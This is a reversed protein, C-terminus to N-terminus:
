QVYGLNELERRTEPDLQQQLKEEAKNELKWGFKDIYGTKLEAELKAITDASAGSIEQQERPDSAVAYLEQKKMPLTHDNKGRQTENAQNRERKVPPEFGSPNYIYKHDGTRIYLMKDGWEGIVPGRDLPQKNFVASLGVGEYATPRDVGLLELVTPAIDVLSVPTADRVGAPVKGPLRFILPVHLTGEYLSAQHHWYGHHDGLEEGHDASIVVLTDDLIGLSAVKDLVRGVQDDNFAVEGDYLGRVYALDADTLKEQKVFARTLRDYSGDLSGSYNKDTFRNFEKPPEYPGHPAMYHLWLYFKKDGNKELWDIAADSVARDRPENKLLVKMEFGEWRQQGGNAIFLASAYGHPALIEALTDFKSDLTMGNYRVGHTVPHLGTQITALSPWTSGKPAYAYEFLTGEKAVADARPSTDNPNGYCGLHGARLTDTTILLLNTYDLDKKVV